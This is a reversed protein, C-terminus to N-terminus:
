IENNVKKSLKSIREFSGMDCWLYNSPLKVCNFKLNNQNIFQAVEYEERLSIKLDNIKPIEGKSLKILGTLIYDSYKKKPKEIIKQFIGSKNFKLNGFEKFDKSKICFIVNKYKKISEYILNNKKFDFLFHDGMNILVENSVVIKRCLSIAHMAGLPLKQEIFSINNFKFYFEAIQKFKLQDNKKCVIVIKKIRMLEFQKLSYYVIPKDHVPYFHKNFHITYPKLRSGEGGALLIGIM